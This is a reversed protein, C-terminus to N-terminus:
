FGTPLASAGSGGLAFLTLLAILVLLAQRRLPLPWASRRKM